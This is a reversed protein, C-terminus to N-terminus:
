KNNKTSLNQIVASRPNKGHLWNTIKKEPCHIKARMQAKTISSRWIPLAQPLSYEIGSGIQTQRM